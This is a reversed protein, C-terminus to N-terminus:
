LNWVRVEGGAGVITKLTNLNKLLNQLSVMGEEIGTAHSSRCNYKSEAQYLSRPMVGANRIRIRMMKLLSRIQMLSWSESGSKTDFHEPDM